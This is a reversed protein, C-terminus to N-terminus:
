EPKLFNYTERLIFQKMAYGKRTHDVVLPVEHKKHSPHSSPIRSVTFRRDITSTYSQNDKKRLDFKKKWIPKNESVKRDRISKPGPLTSIQSSFDRNRSQSYKGKQQNVEAVDKIKMFNAPVFGLMSQSPKDTPYRQDYISKHGIEPRSHKITSKM